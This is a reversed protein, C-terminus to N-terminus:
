YQLFHLGTGNGGTLAISVISELGIDQPDIVVREISGAVVPQIKAEQGLVM